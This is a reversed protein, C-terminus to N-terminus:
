NGLPACRQIVDAEKMSQAGPTSIYCYKPNENIQAVLLAVRQDPLSFYFVQLVCLLLKDLDAYFHVSESRGERRKERKKNPGNARRSTIMTKNEELSLNPWVEGFQFGTRWIRLTEVEARLGRRAEVRLHRWAVIWCRIHHTLQSPVLHGFLLSVNKFWRFM